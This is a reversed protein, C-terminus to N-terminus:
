GSNHSSPPPPLLSWHTVKRNVGDWKSGLGLSNYDPLGKERDVYKAIRLPKRKCQVKVLVWQENEPLKQKVDFWM